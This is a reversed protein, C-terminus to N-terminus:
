AEYKISGFIEACKCIDTMAMVSQPISRITCLIIDIDQIEGVISEFVIRIMIKLGRYVDIVHSMSPLNVFYCTDFFSDYCIINVLFPFCDFCDVFILRQWTWGPSVAGAVWKKACIMKNSATKPRDSQDNGILLLGAAVTPPAQVFLLTLGSHQWTCPLVVLWEYTYHRKAGCALRAASHTKFWQQREPLCGRTAVFIADDVNEIRGTGLWSPWAFWMMRHAPSWHRSVWSM